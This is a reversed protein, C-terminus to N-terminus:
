QAPPQEPPKGPPAALRQQYQQWSLTLTDLFVPAQAAALYVRCSVASRPYFTTIFDLCFEAQSHVIRAANAYAGSLLEDPLKLQAYIEESSPRPTGPAPPRLAPPPGFQAQYHALNERLAQILAHLVAPALVVRAVVQRPQVVAQVFDLIFEHAAQQAMAGTAFVGRGVKEPVRASVSAHQVEQSFLGSDGPPHRSSSDDPTSSM